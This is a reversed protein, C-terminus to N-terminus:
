AAKPSFILFGQTSVTVHFFTDNTHGEIKLRTSQGGASADNDLPRMEGPTAITADRLTWISPVMIM